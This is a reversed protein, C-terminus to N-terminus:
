STIYFYIVLAFCVAAVTFYAVTIWDTGSKPKPQVQEAAESFVGGSSSAMAPDPEAMVSSSDNDDMATTASITDFFSSAAKDQGDAANGRHEDDNRDSDDGDFDDGDFDDDSDNRDSDDGDFDDEYDQDNRDSDDDDFDDDSDDGDFDDDSDNRDSDDGDFDDDSDDGDFDDDNRDSEDNDFGDEDQGNDAVGDDAPADDPDPESEGDSVDDQITDQVADADTDADADADADTDAQGDGTAFRPQESEWKVVIQIFERVALATQTGQSAAHDVVKRRVRKTVESCEVGGAGSASVSAAIEDIDRQSSPSLRTGHAELWAQIAQALQM